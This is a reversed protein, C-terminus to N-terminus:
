EQKLEPFKTNLRDKFLEWLTTRSFDPYLKQLKDLVDIMASKAMKSDMKKLKKKKKRDGLEEKSLADGGTLDSPVKTAYGDGVALSKILEEDVELQGLDFEIEQAGILSKALDAYTDTNVPNMTLACATLTAKKIVKGGEGGRERIVGEISLGMRGRDQEKLSSMVQYVAKAKDHNQFLYGGLHLKGDAKQVTDIIGITNEPGKKHDWNWTGKRSNLVSLDLGQIDVIEGQLDKTSTSALGQIRWEGNAGKQIDAPIFSKFTTEGMPYTYCLDVNTILNLMLIM